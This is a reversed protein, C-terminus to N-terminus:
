RTVIFAALGIAVLDEAIAAPYAGFRAIAALRVALGGYTGIAAGAIGAMAGLIGSGGHMTAILWGVLAGSVFRATLGRAKARSAAGPQVDMVDEGVAAVAAIIGWIGDRVLLVAAIPTAVRLGAVFGLALALLLPTM